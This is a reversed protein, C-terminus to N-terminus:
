KLFALIGGVILGVMVLLIMSKSSFVSDTYKSWFKDM